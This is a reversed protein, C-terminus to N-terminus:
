KVEVRQTPIVRTRSSLSFDRICSTVDSCGASDSVVDIVGPRSYTRLTDYGLRAARVRAKNADCKIYGGRM